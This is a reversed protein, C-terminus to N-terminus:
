GSATRSRRKAAFRQLTSVLSSIVTGLGIGTLIQSGLHIPDHMERAFLYVLGALGALAGALVLALVPTLVRPSLTRRAPVLGLSTLRGEIHRLEEFAASLGQARLRRLHAVAEVRRGAMVLHEVEAREPESLSRM